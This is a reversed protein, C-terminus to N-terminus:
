GHNYTNSYSNTLPFGQATNVQEKIVDSPGDSPCKFSTHIPSAFILRVDQM